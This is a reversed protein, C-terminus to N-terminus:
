CHNLFVQTFGNINVTAALVQDKGVMFVFNGLATAGVIAFGKGIDPHVVTKDIDFPLLHGFGQAVETHDIVKELLIRPFHQAIHNEGGM